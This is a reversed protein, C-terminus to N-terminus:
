KEGIGGSNKINLIMDRCRQSVPIYHTIIGHLDEGCLECYTKPIYRPTQEVTPTNTGAGPLGSALDAEYQLRWSEMTRATVGNNGAAVLYRERAEADRFKMLEAAVSLNIAKAKVADKIREDWGNMEIRRELYAIGKGTANALRDLDWGKDRVLRGYYAAEEIPDVDERKLNEHIKITEGM